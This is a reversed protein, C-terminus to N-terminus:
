YSPFLNMSKNRYILCFVPQECVHTNSLENLIWCLGQKSATRKGWQAFCWPAYFGSPLSVSQLKKSTFCTGRCKPSTHSGVTGWYDARLPNQAPVHLDHTRHLVPIIYMTIGCASFFSGIGIHLYLMFKSLLSVWDESCSSNARQPARLGQIKAPSSFLVAWCSIVNLVDYPPVM